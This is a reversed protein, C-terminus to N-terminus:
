MVKFYSQFAEVAEGLDNCAISVGTLNPHEVMYTYKESAPGITCGELKLLLLATCHDPKSKGRTSGTKSPGTTAKPM